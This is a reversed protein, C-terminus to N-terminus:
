GMLLAILLSTIAVGAIGILAVVIQWCRRLHNDLSRKISRVEGLLFIILERDSMDKIKM